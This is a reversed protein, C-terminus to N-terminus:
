YKLLESEFAALHNYSGRRLNTYVNQIDRHTTAAIAADLDEIDTEEIEVGVGLAAEKSVSGHATLETYLDGFGYDYSGSDPFVGPGMGAVPDPVSYRDLLTKIADMHKQESTAIRSFIPMKWPDYLNLYVDRALKEEERMYTLWQIEDDSLPAPSSGPGPGYGQYGAALVGSPVLVLALLLMFAFKKM